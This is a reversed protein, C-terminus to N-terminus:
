HVEKKLTDQQQYSRLREAFYQIPNNPKARYLDLISSSVIEAVNHQKFYDQTLISKFAMM